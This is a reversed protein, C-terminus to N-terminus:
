KKCRKNKWTTTGNEVGDCNYHLITTASDGAGCTTIQEIHHSSTQQSPSVRNYLMGCMVVTTTILAVKAVKKMNGIVVEVQDEVM